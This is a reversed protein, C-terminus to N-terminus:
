FTSATKIFACIGEYRTLRGQHLSRWRSCLHCFVFAGWSGGTPVVTSLLQRPRRHQQRGGRGVARHQVQGEGGQEGPSSQKKSKQSLRQEGRFREQSWLWSRLPLDQFFIHASWNIPPAFSNSDGIHKNEDHVRTYHDSMQGYQGLMYTLLWHFASLFHSSSSSFSVSSPTSGVVQPCTTQTATALTGSALRFFVMEPFSFPFTRQGSSNLIGGGQADRAPPSLSNRPWISPVPQFITKNQNLNKKFSAQYEREAHRHSLPVIRHSPSSQLSLMPAPHLVQGLNDGWRSFIKEIFERTWFSEERRWSRWPPPTCAPTTGPSTTSALTTPLCCWFIQRGQWMTSLPLSFFSSCPVQFNTIQPLSSFWPPIKFKTPWSLSLGRLYRVM